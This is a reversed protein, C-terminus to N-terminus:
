YIKKEDIGFFSCLINAYSEFNNAVFSTQTSNYIFFVVQAAPEELTKLIFNASSLNLRECNEIFILRKSGLQPPYLCFDKIKQVDELRLQNRERDIVLLDPHYFNKAEGIQIHCTKKAFQYFDEDMLGCNIFQKSVLLIAQYQQLNYQLFNEFFM